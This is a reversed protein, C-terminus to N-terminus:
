DIFDEYIEFVDMVCVYFKWKQHGTSQFCSHQTQITPFHGDLNVQISSTSNM